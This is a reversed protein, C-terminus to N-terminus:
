ITDPDIGQKRWYKRYYNVEKEINFDKGAIKAHLATIIIGSMDDAHRIGMQVFRNRLTASKEPQAGWLNWANRMNMGGFFGIKGSFEEETMSSFENRQEETLDAYLLDVASDLDEPITKFADPM